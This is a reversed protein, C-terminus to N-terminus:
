AKGGKVLESILERDQERRTKAAEARAAFRQHVAPNVVWHPPDSPRPGPVRTVWGFADLQEFIAETEYRKLGRMSRDGRQVDRNTIQGLKHALIYDAINALRDHDNSLGLVGAYFALAHPLLFGHLFNAVCRATNETVTAPLEGTGVVAHEVCHWIVCLRAFTGNYKGIHSALKRNLSGCQSLKLHRLELDRRIVSAGADFKLNVPSPLLNGSKPPRLKNLKRILDSYDHVSQAPLEDGGAVAVALIIPTIRQLLGDDVSEEAIQRIPGPQIGGLVSISLNPIYLNGRVVRSVTYATGNYSELWFARDASAASRSGGSYKDISGFWGALEDRFLLVGDPSDKLTDQAAEVTTNMIMVRPQRPKATTKKDDASLRQWEDMVEQNERALDNDISRLPATVEGMLPTKITSVDGILAVWIRASELWRTNNKKVQLKIGDPIAAACVALSGVAIGAMDCGM